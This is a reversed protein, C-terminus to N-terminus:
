KLRLLAAEEEALRLDLDLASGAGAAKAGVVEAAPNMPFVVVSTEWLLVDKLLRVRQGDVENYSEDLVEYGISLSKVHGEILLARVSQATATSALRATIRLGKSDETADVITGLVHTTAAVHDALLPIGDSKIRPLNRAFAGPVVIDGGRDLDWTSAYGVLEGSATAKWECPITKHLM